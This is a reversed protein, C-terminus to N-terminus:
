QSIRLAYLINTMRNQCHPHVRFCALVTHRCGCTCILTNLNRVFREKQDHSLINPDVGVEAIVSNLAQEKRRMEEAQEAQRQRELQAKREAEAAAQQALEQQRANEQRAQELDHQRQLENLRAIEQQQELEKKQQLERQRELEQQHAVEEQHAQEARSDAQQKRILEDQRKREEQIRADQDAKQADDARQQSLVDNKQADEAHHDSLSAAFAILCLCALVVVAAAAWHTQSKPPMANKFLEVPVSASPRQQMPIPKAGGLWGLEESEILECLKRCQGESRTVLYLRSNDTFCECEHDSALQELADISKESDSPLPTVELLWVGAQDADDVAAFVGKSVVQQIRFRYLQKQNSEM